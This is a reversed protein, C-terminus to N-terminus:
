GERGRSEVSGVGHKLYTFFTNGGNRLHNLRRGCQLFVGDKGDEV